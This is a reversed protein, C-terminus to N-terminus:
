VILNDIDCISETPCRFIRSQVRPFLNWSEHEYKLWLKILNCCAGARSWSDFPKLMFHYLNIPTVDASNLEVYRFIMNRLSLSKKPLKRISRSKKVVAGFTWPWRRYTGNFREYVVVFNAEIEDIKWHRRRNILEQTSSRNAHKFTRAAASQHQPEAKRARRAFFETYHHWDTVWDDIPLPLNIRLQRPFNSSQPTEHRPPSHKAPTM